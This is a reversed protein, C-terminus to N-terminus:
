GSEGYQEEPHEPHDPHSPHDSESPHDPHSPHEEHNGLKRIQWGIFLLGLSIAATSIITTGGGGDVCGCTALYEAISEMARTAADQRAVEASDPQPFEIFIFTSDNDYITVVTTDNLTIVRNDDQAALPAALLLAAIVVYNRPNM